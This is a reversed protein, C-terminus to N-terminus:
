ILKMDNTKMDTFTKKKMSIRRVIESGNRGDKNIKSGLYIYNGTNRIIRGDLLINANLPLSSKTVIM